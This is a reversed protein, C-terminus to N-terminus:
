VLRTSSGHWIAPMLSPFPRIYIHSSALEPSEEFSGDESQRSIIFSLADDIFSQNPAEAEMPVDNSAENSVEGSAAGPVGSSAQNSVEISAEHLAESTLGLQECQALRYCTADISSAGPAWFPSFGGDSRQLAKLEDVAERVSCEEHLLVNLRTLEMNNGHRRVFQIASGIDSM